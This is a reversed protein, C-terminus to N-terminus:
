YLVFSNKKNILINVLEYLFRNKENKKETIIPSYNLSIFYSAIFRYNHEKESENKQLKLNYKAYYFICM